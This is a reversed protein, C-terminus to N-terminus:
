LWSSVGSWTIEFTELKTGLARAASVVAEASLGFPLIL